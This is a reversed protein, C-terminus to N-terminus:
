NSARRYEERFARMVHLVKQIGNVVGAQVRIGAESDTLTMANSILRTTEQNSMEAIHNLLQDYCPFRVFERWEDRNPFNM